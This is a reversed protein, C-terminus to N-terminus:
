HVDLGKSGGFPSARLLRVLFAAGVSAVLGKIEGLPQLFLAGAPSPCLSSCFAQQRSAKIVRRGSGALMEDGLHCKRIWKPLEDM